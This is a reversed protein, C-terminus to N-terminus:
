KEITYGVEPCLVSDKRLTVYKNNHNNCIRCLPVIYIKDFNSNMGVHGGEAQYEEESAKTGALQRSRVLEQCQSDEINAFIMRKCCACSLMNEYKKTLARWYDIWSVGKWAKRNGSEPLNPYRKDEDLKIIMGDNLDFKEQSFDFAYDKLESETM